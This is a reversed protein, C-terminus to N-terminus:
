RPAQTKEIASALRITESTPNDVLSQEIASRANAENGSEIDLLAINHHAVSSGYIATFQQIAGQRDGARYGAIARTSQLRRDAPFQQLSEDLVRIAPALRDSELLTWALNNRLEVDNPTSEIARQYRAVAKDTEGAQAYIPALERDLPPHKPALKEAQEYLAIAETFHGNAAITKATQICLERESKPTGHESASSLSHSALPEIFDSTRKARMSQCGLSILLLSAVTLYRIM